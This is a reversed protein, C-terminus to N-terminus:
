SARGSARAALKLLERELLAYDRGAAPARVNVVYDLSDGFTERNNRFIERIVRKSRNRLVAGGFKRTVTLGLRSRGAENPLVFIAFAASTLRKGNRYIRDFDSSRLIRDEPRFRRDPRTKSSRSASADRRGEDDSSTAAM